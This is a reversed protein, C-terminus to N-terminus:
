VHLHYVADIVIMDGASLKANTYQLETAINRACTDLFMTEANHFDGTTGDCFLCAAQPLEEADM